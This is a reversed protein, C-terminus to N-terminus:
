AKKGLGTGNPASIYERDERIHFFHHNNKMLFINVPDRIKWDIRSGSRSIRSGSQFFEPGPGSIRYGSGPGPGQFEPGPGQCFEPGPGQFEPGPVQIRSGSGPGPM